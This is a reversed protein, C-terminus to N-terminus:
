LLCVLGDHLMGFLQVRSNHVVSVEVVLVKAEFGELSGVKETQIAFDSFSWLLHDHANSNSYMIVINLLDDLRVVEHGLFVECM